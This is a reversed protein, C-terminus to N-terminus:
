RNLYPSFIFGFMDKIDSSQEGRHLWVEHTPCWYLIAEDVIAEARMDALDEQRSDDDEYEEQAPHSM